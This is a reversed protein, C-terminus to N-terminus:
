REDEDDGFTGHQFPSDVRSVACEIMCYIEGPNEDVYIYDEGETFEHQCDRGDCRGDKLTM